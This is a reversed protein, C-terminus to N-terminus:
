IDGLVNRLRTIEAEEESLVEQFAEFDLRREIANKIRQRLIEVPLADLEVAIDGYRRIFEKSRTDGKKAPAPPLNYREVDDFTLACRVIEPYSEFFGLREELSRPMDAGSPDLDGFYLITVDQGNMERVRYRKAAEYISSWGDYGRGVNLTIGYEELVEEFVASLAQKELWVELYNPQEEWIDKRYSYLIVEIYEPLDRWMSVGRPQRLRDEIWEWPIFGEKRAVVLARSLRNYEAESNNIIQQSVLQYYVQRLTMPHYAALIQKASEILDLTRRHLGM